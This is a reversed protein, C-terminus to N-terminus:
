PWRPSRARAPSPARATPSTAPPTASPSARRQRPHRRRRLLPRLLVRPHHRRRGDIDAIAGNKVLELYAPMAPRSLRQINFEGNGCARATCSTRGRRLHQRYTGGSCGAVVGQEVYISATRAIKGVLDLHVKGSGLQKNAQTRRGRAPHRDANAKLERITYANSPHFPM